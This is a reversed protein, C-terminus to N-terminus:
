SPPQNGYEKFRKYSVEPLLHGRQGWNFVHPMHKLFKKEDVGTINLSNWSPMHSYILLEEALDIMLSKDHDSPLLNGILISVPLSSWLELNHQLLRNGVHVSKGIYLLTHGYLDSMGVYQYLGSTKSAKAKKLGCPGCWKLHIDM